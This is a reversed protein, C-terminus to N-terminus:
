DVKAPCDLTQGIVLFLLGAELEPGAPVHLAAYELVMCRRHNVEVERIRVVRCGEFSKWHEMEAKEDRTCCVYLM